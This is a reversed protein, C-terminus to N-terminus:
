WRMMNQKNHKKEQHWLKHEERKLVEAFTEQSKTKSVEMAKNIVSTPIVSINM